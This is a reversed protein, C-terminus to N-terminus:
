AAPEWSVLTQGPKIRDGQKVHIATIRAPVPLTMPMEIKMAEVVLIPEQPAIVENVKARVDLVVGPVQAVIPGRHSKAEEVEFQGAFAIRRQAIGRIPRDFSICLEFRTIWGSAKVSSESDTDFKGAIRVIGQPSATGHLEPDPEFSRLIGNARVFQEAANRQVFLESSLKKGWFLLDADLDNKTATLEPHAEIWRTHIVNNQFDNHQLVTKLFYKNTILGAVITKKLVESAESIAKSRDNSHVIVKSFLSDYEQPITDGEDYGSDIRLSTGQPYRLETIPGPTPLFHNSPDEACLRLEIAHGSSHINSLLPELAEGEAVLFQLEVLDVGWVMETVPHEVQLRANMEMFFFEWQNKSNQQVLFEITGANSYGAATALAIAAAHLKSRTKDDLIVAPTEEVVKQNRRQLSCDREGLAFFYKYRDGIIQVEVHRPNELFREVFLEGSGFSRLAESRATRLAEEFQSADRVIRQGRGGGGRTAKILAPLGIEKVISKIEQQDPAGSIQKWPAVPVEVTGAIEKARMKDGIQRMADPSPGIWILGARQIREAFDPNESLFGYGPHIANVETSLATEVLLEANLYNQSLDGGPLAIAHDVERMAKSNTDQPSHVGVTRIGLKRATRAVRSAIEGRNAILVSGIKM